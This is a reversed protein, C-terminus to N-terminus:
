KNNIKEIIKLYIIEKDSHILKEIKLQNEITVTKYKQYIPISNMVIKQIKM